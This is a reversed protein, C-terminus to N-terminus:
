EESGAERRHAAAALQERNEFGLKAFVRNLHSKVTPVSIFLQKGIESNTLHHGVLSAVKRESPTLSGWGAPDRSRSGRGRRAYAVAEEFSLARGDSMAQSCADHGLATQMDVIMPALELGAPVPRVYGIVDRQGEAAGLLRAAELSHGLDLLTIAVLELLDIAHLLSGSGYALALGDCALSHARHAEGEARALKAQAGLRPVASPEDDRGAGALYLAFHRRASPIDGRYLAADILEAKIGLHEGAFGSAAVKACGRELVEYGQDVQGCWVLAKGKVAEACAANWLDGSALAVARAREAADPAAQDGHNYAVECRVIEALVTLLPFPREETFRLLVETEDWARQLQGSWVATAALAARARMAGWVWAANEAERLAEEACEAAERHRFLWRYSQAKYVLGLVLLDQQGLRRALPLVEDLIAIAERPQGLAHVYAENSLGVAVMAEDGLSRGLATLEKAMRLSVIPDLNVSCRAAWLLIEARQRPALPATLLEGCRGLAEARLCHTYFLAGVAGMLEAGADFQNSQVAWDLAARLNDLDAELSGLAGAADSTWHKAGLATAHETFYTLHRDKLGASSGEAGLASAAFARMTEHLRFRDARPLAQVLSKEVLSTLLGFVARHEVEGGSCVAEAAALTFGSAFVSLRGLLAREEESLLDCSWEISALLTRHRPSETRGTGALLRFRDSLAEAIAGVSMVSVRAAALELALPIGDLRECIAAVAPSDQEDLSFDARAVRARETFLRGAESRELWGQDGALRRDPLELGGVTVVVEGPVGLRQRSTALLRVKPCQRLLVTALDACADVLHECNDLVLLLDHDPLQEALAGLEAKRPPDALGLASRVADPVLGPVSLGSLDVLCVAGSSAALAQDGVEIALRTKGCGGPGVLTVLRHEM